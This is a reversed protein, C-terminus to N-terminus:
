VSLNLRMGGSRALKPLSTRRSYLCPPRHRLTVVSGPLWSMCIHMTGICTPCLGGSTALSAALDCTSSWIQKRLLSCRQHQWLWRGRSCGQANANEGLNLLPNQSATHLLPRGTRQGFCSFGSVAIDYVSYRSCARAAVRKDVSQKISFCRELQMRLSWQTASYHLILCRTEEM